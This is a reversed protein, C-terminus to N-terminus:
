RPLLRVGSSERLPRPHVRALQVRADTAAGSAAQAFTPDPRVTSAGVRHGLRRLEGQVRTYGWSPNEKALRVILEVLTPPIPPRGAPQPQSWKAAVLRRHWVLLTGPTVIRHARLPKSLLRALAVIVARDSWTPRARGTQRRLV